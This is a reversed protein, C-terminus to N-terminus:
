ILLWNGQSNGPCNSHRPIHRSKLQQVTSVVVVLVRTGPATVKRTHCSIGWGMFGMIHVLVGGMVGMIQVMVVVVMVVMIKVVVVVGDGDNDWGMVM